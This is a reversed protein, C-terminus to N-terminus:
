TQYHLLIRPQGHFRENRSRWKFTGHHESIRQPFCTEGCCIKLASVKAASKRSASKPQPPSVFRGGFQIRMRDFHARSWPADKHLAIQPAAQRRLCSLAAKKPALSWPV